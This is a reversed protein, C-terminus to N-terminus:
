AVETAKSKDRKELQTKAKVGRLHEPIRFAPDTRQRIREVVDAGFEDIDQRLQEAEITSMTEADQVYKKWSWPGGTQHQDFEAASTGPPLTGFQAAIKLSTRNALTVYEFGKARWKNHQRVPLPGTIDWTAKGSNDFERVMEGFEDEVYRPRRYIAHVDIKEHTIWADNFPILKLSM